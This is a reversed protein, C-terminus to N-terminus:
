SCDPEPCFHVRTNVTRQRGRTFTILPRSSDLAKRRADVGQECAVCLPKRILGAFLKPAQSRKRRSKGLKLPTQLIASSDDLWWIRIICYILVLAVALLQYFLVNSAM